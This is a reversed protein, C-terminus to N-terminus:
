RGFIARTFPTMSPSQEDLWSRFANNPNTLTTDDYRSKATNVVDSAAQGYLPNAGAYLLPILNRYSQAVADQDQLSGLASNFGESGPIGRAYKQVNGFFDDGNSVQKAFGSLFDSIGGGVGNNAAGYAQRLAQFIPSMGRMAAKSGATLITPDLGADRFMADLFVDNSVGDKPDFQFDAIARGDGGTPVAGAGGGGTAPPASPTRGTQQEAQRQAAAAQANGAAAVAAAINAAGTGTPGPAGGAEAAGAREDRGGGQAGGPVIGSSSSGQVQRDRSGPDPTAAVPGGNGTNVPIGRAVVTPLVEAPLPTGQLIHKAIAEAMQPNSQKLENALETLAATRQAETM